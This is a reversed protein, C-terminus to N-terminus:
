DRPAGAHGSAPRPEPAVLAVELAPQDSRLPHDHRFLGAMDRWVDPQGGHDFGEAYIRQM